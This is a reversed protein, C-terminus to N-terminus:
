GPAFGLDQRIVDKWEDHMNTDFDDFTFDREFRQVEPNLRM